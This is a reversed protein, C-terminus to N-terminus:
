AAHLSSGEPVYILRPNEARCPNRVLLPALKRYRQLEKMGFVSNQVERGSGSWAQPWM